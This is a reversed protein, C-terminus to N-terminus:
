YILLGEDNGGAWAFALLAALTFCSGGLVLFDRGCFSSKGKGRFFFFRHTLPDGSEDGCWWWRRMEEGEPTGVAWLFLYSSLSLLGGGWVAGQDQTWDSTKRKGQRAKVKGM